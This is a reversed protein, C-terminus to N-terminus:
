RDGSCRRHGDAAVDVFHVKNDTSTSATSSNGALDTADGAPITVVVDGTGNM